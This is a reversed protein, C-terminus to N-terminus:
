YADQAGASIARGSAVLWCSLLLFASSVETWVLEFLAWSRPGLVWRVRGRGSRGSRPLLAAKVTRAKPRRTLRAENGLRTKVYALLKLLARSKAGETGDVM